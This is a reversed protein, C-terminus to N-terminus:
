DPQLALGRRGAPVDERRSRTGDERATRWVTEEGTWRTPTAPSRPARRFPERRGTTALRPGASRRLATTSEVDLGHRQVAVYSESISMAGAPSFPKPSWPCSVFAARCINESRFRAPPRTPSFFADTDALTTRVPWPRRSITSPMVRVLDFVELDVLLVDRRLRSFAETVM